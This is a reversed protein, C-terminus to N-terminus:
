QLRVGESWDSQTELFDLFKINISWNTCIYHYIATTYVSSSGTISVYDMDRIPVTIVGQGASIMSFKGKVDYWLM